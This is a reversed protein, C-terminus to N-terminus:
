KAQKEQVQKAEHLERAKQQEGEAFTKKETRLNEIEREKEAFESEFQEIKQEFFKTQAPSAGKPADAPALSKKITEKDLASAVTNNVLERMTSTQESMITEWQAKMQDMMEAPRQMSEILQRNEKAKNTEMTSM